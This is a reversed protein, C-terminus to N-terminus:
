HSLTLVAVASPPLHVTDGTLKHAMPPAATSQDVHEEEAGAADAIAVNLPCDRKNVLLV